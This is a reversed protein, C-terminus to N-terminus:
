RELNQMSNLDRRYSPDCSPPCSRRRPGVGPVTRQRVILWSEAVSIPDQVQRLYYGREPVELALPCVTGVFSEVVKLEIM